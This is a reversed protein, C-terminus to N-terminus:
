WAGEQCHDNYCIGGGRELVIDISDNIFKKLEAPNLYETMYFSFIRSYKKEIKGIEDAKGSLIEIGLNKGLAPNVDFGTVNNNSFYAARYYGYGVGVELVNEDKIKELYPIIIEDPKKRMLYYSLGKRNYKKETFTGYRRFNDMLLRRLFYIKGMRGM